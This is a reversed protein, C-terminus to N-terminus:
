QELLWVCIATVANLMELEDVPHSDEWRIAPSLNAVLDQLLDSVEDGYREEIKSPDPLSWCWFDKCEAGLLVDYEVVSTWSLKLLYGENPPNAGLMIMFAVETDSQLDVVSVPNANPHQITVVVLRFLGISLHSGVVDDTYGQFSEGDPLVIEEAANLNIRGIRMAEEILAVIEERSYAM